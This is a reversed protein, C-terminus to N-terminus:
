SGAVGELAIVIGRGSGAARLIIGGRASGGSRPVFRRGGGQVRTPGGVCVGRILHVMVLHIQVAARIRQFLGFVLGAGRVGRQRKGIQFLGIGSKRIFLALYPIGDDGGGRNRRVAAAHDVQIIGPILKVHGKGFVARSIRIGRRRCFCIVAAADAKRYRETGAIGVARVRGHRCRVTGYAGGLAAIGDRIGNGIDCRCGGDVHARGRNIFVGDGELVPVARNEFGFFHVVARGGGRGRVRGSIRVFRVVVREVAPAAIGINGFVLGNGCAIGSRRVREGRKNLVGLKGGAGLGTRIGVLAISTNLRLSHSNDSGAVAHREVGGDATRVALVVAGHRMVVAGAAFLVERFFGSGGLKGRKVVVRGARVAGHRVGRYRRGAGFGTKGLTGVTREATRHNRRLRGHVGEAMLHREVVGDATRVALVVAGHRM